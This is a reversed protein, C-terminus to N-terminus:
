LKHVQFSRKEPCRHVVYWFASILDPAVKEDMFMLATALTKVAAQHVDSNSQAQHFMSLDSMYM